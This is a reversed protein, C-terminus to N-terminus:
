SLITVIQQYVRSLDTNGLQFAIIAAEDFLGEEEYSKQLEKAVVLFVDNYETTRALEGSYLQSHYEKLVDISFYSLCNPAERVLHILTYIDRYRRCIVAANEIDKKGLLYEITEEALGIRVATNRWDLANSRVEQAVIDGVHERFIAQASNLQSVNAVYEKDQHAPCLANVAETYKKRTLYASALEFRNRKIDGYLQRKRESPTDSMMTTYETDLLRVQESLYAIKNDSGQEAKRRLVTLEEGAVGASHVIDFLYSPDLSSTAALEFVEQATVGGMTMLNKIDGVRMTPDELIVSRLTRRALGGMSHDGKGEYQRISSGIAQFDSPLSKRQEHMIYYNRALERQDLALLQDVGEKLSNTQLCLHRARALRIKETEDPKDPAAELRDLVVKIDFWPLYEMKKKQHKDLLDQAKQLRSVDHKDIAMAVAYQAGLSAYGVLQTDRFSSEIKHTLKIMDDVDGRAQVDDLSDVIVSSVFDASTHFRDVDLSIQSNRMLEFLGRSAALPVTPHSLDFLKSVIRWSELPANTGIETKAM